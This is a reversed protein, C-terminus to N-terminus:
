SADRVERLMGYDWAVTKLPAVEFWTRGAPAGMPAEAPQAQGRIYIARLDFYYIGADILLVVEQGPGPRRGTEGPFGALYRGERWLMVVPQAQPGQDGAFCICARPVRELLDRASAPDINRTVKKM